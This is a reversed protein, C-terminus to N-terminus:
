VGNRQGYKAPYSKPSSWYPTLAILADISLYRPTITKTQFELNKPVQDWIKHTLDSPTERDKRRLGTIGGVDPSVLSVDRLFTFGM